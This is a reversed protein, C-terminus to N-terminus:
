KLLSELEEVVKSGFKTEKLRPAEMSLVQQALRSADSGQRLLTKVVHCGFQNEALDLINQADSVLATELALVDQPAANELAKEIVYTAQRNRANKDLEQMLAQAITAKHEAQGHELFHEMVHHGYAHRCLEGAQALIEDMLALMTPDSLSHELFRCIVRCGFPHRTAQAGAGRLEEAIFSSDKAPLVEVIKQVVYNAQPCRIARRVNGRLERALLSAWMRDAKELALQVVRTGTVDFSLDLVSGQLQTVAAAVDAQDGSKLRLLLTAAFESLQKQSGRSGATRSEDDDQDKAAKSAQKARQRRRRRSASATLFPEDWEAHIEWEAQADWGDQYSHRKNKEPTAWPQQYGHACTQSSAVGGFPALWSAHADVYDCDQMLLQGNVMLMTKSGPFPSVMPWIHVNQHLGNEQVANGVTDTVPAAAFGTQYSTMEPAPFTM